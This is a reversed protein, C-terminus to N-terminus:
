QILTGDKHGGKVKVTEKLDIELYLGNSTLTEVYLNQPTPSVIWDM